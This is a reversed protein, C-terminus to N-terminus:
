EKCIEPYLKQCCEPCISHTFEAESRESIYDEVQSWFGKDDRIKKCSACIPIFGKLIKLEAMAHQLEEILKKREVAELQLQKNAKSLEETREAVRQELERHSGTLEINIDELEQQIARLRIHARVRALVEKPEFPKSIYDVGGINFAKEKDLPNASVSLFIVPIDRSDESEKLRRCLEYGDLGPMRIDSLVMAPLKAKMSRLALNGDNAPRVTYGAKNLIDSLLKLDSTSDDVVLLDKNGAIRNNVNSM